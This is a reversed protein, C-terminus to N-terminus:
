VSEFAVALSAVLWRHEDAVPQALPARASVAEVLDVARDRLVLTGEPSGAAGAAEPGDRVVVEKGGVEIVIRASPDTTELVLTAPTSIGSQLAFAPGLAASFRLCALVEDPEEAVPRGLPLGIDREHVWCDWLAHHVVALIPIHGAPAEALMTWQDGDLAAVQACLAESSEALAGLTAAPPPGEALAVAVMAAPTAKPDFGDLLRTPTGALGNTISWQWFRNVGELHAAVDQVTWGECRSPARWADDDLEGLSDVLRERQRVFAAGLGPGDTGDGVFRVIAPGEYRPAVQM